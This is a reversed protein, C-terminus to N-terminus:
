TPDGGGPSHRRIFDLLHELQEKAPGEAGIWADNEWDALREAWKETESEIIHIWVLEIVSSWYMANKQTADATEWLHSLYAGFKNVLVDKLADMESSLDLGTQSGNLNLAQIVSPEIVSFAESLKADITVNLSTLLSAAGDERSLPVAFSSALLSLGSMLGVSM